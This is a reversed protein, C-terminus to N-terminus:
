WGKEAIRRPRRVIFYLLAGIVHLFVIVLVWVIKTNGESSENRVCDILAWIWPIWFACLVGALWLFDMGHPLFALFLPHM